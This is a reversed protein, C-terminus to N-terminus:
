PVKWAGLLSETAELPPTQIRDSPCKLPIETIPHAKVDSFGGEVSRWPAQPVKPADLFVQMM